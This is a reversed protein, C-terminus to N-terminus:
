FRWISVLNTVSSYGWPCQNYNCKDHPWWDLTACIFNDDIAAVAITGDISITARTGEQALIVPFSALFLLLSFSFEM